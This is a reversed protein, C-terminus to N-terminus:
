SAVKNWIDVAYDQRTKSENDVDAPVEFVRVFYDAGSKAGALSNPVSM